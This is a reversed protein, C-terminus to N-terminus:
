VVVSAKITEFIKDGIGQVQKLEDVNKFSGHSERYAVIQEAKKDGIGNLKTLDEKSASNLNVQGSDSKQDNQSTSSSKVANDSSSSTTVSPSNTTSTASSDVIPGKVEGRIPVYVVQQDSLQSALNVHKRDASRNLGGALNIADTIRMGEKVEYVGPNKVAGKVDVMIKTNAVPAPKTTVSQTSGSIKNDTNATDGSVGSSTSIASSGNIGALDNSKPNKCAGMLLAVVITVVAVAVGSIIIQRQYKDWLEELM